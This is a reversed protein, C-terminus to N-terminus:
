CSANSLPAAQIQLGSRTGLYLRCNIRAPASTNGPQSYATIPDQNSILAPSNIGPSNIRTCLSATDSGTMMVRHRYRSSMDATNFQLEAASTIYEEDLSCLPERKMEVGGDAACALKTEAEACLCVRLISDHRMTLGSVDKFEAM